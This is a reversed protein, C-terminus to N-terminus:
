WSAKRLGPLEGRMTAKRLKNRGLGFKRYFGHPRGSIACRNRMRSPSANRPLSQLKAVAAMRDEDTGNPDKIQAKLAARRAALRAVIKARKLEREVMSKKAM